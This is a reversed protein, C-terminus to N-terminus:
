EERFAEEFSYLEGRRIDRDLTRVAALIRLFLRKDMIIELTEQAARLERVFAESCEFHPYM